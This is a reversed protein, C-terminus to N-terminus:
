KKITILGMIISFLGIILYGAGKIGILADVLFACGVLLLGLGFIILFMGMVNRKIAAVMRELEQKIKGFVSDSVSKMFGTAFGGLVEKWHTSMWEASSGNNAKKHKLM